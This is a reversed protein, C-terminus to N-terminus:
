TYIIHGAWVPKCSVILLINFFFFVSVLYAVYILFSGCLFFNCESSLCGLNKCFSFVSQIVTFFIDEIVINTSLQLNKQTARLSFTKQRRHINASFEKKNIKILSYFQAVNKLLSM